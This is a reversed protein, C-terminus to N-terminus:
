LFAFPLHCAGHSLCVPLAHFTAFSIPSGVVVVVGGVGVVAIVFFM